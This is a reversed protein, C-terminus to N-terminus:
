AGFQTGALARTLAPDLAVEGQREILARVGRVEEEALLVLAVAPALSFPDGIFARRCLRLRERRLLVPDDLRSTAATATRAASESLGYWRQGRRLIESDRERVVLEALRRTLSEAHPLKRAEELLRQSAWRDFALEAAGLDDAYARLVENAIGKYPTRALRETLDRLTTAQLTDESIAALPGLAIWLRHVLDRDSHRVVSRWLLKVNEIEHLRLLAFLLPGARRYGRIATQYVRILREFSSDIGLAALVRQMAAADAAALLAAAADRGLLRSKCARVRAYAYSVPVSPIM